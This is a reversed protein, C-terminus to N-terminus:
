RNSPIGFKLSTDIHTLFGNGSYKCEIQMRPVESIPYQFIPISKKIPTHPARPAPMPVRINQDAM